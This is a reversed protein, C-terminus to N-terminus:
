SLAVGKDEQSPHPFCCTKGFLYGPTQPEELVASLLRAQTERIVKCPCCSSTEREKRPGHFFWSTGGVFDVKGFIGNSTKLVLRSFLGIKTWGVMMKPISAKVSADDQSVLHAFPPQTCWHPQQLSYLLVSQILSVSFMSQGRMAGTEPMELDIPAFGPSGRGTM